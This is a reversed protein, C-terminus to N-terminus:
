GGVIQRQVLRQKKQQEKQLDWQEWEQRSTTTKDGRNSYADVTASPDTTGVAGGQQVSHRWATRSLHTSLGHVFAMRKCEEDPENREEHSAKQDSSDHRFRVHVLDEM